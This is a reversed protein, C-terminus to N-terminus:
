SSRKEIEDLIRSLAKQENLLKDAGENAVEMAKTWEAIWPASLPRLDAMREFHPYTADIMLMTKVLNRQEENAWIQEIQQVAATVKEVQTSDRARALINATNTTDTKLVVRMDETPSQHEKSWLKRFWRGLVM